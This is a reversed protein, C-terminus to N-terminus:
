SRCVGTDDGDNTVCHPLRIDRSANSSSDGFKVLADMGVQGVPHHPPHDLIPGNRLGSFIEILERYVYLTWRKLQSWFCKRRGTRSVIVFVARSALEEHLPMILQM